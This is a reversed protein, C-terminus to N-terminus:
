LDLLLRAIGPTGFTGEFIPNRKESDFKFGSKEYALRAPTNNILVGIQARKYGSRRGRNLVEDLLRSVVGQRRYEPLAAVSEVIWAGEADDPICSMWSRYREVAAKQEDITWDIKQFVEPLAQVFSKMGLVKPDYGSLAGVKQGNMEAVIFTSSHFLHPKQTTAILSLLSLCDQETGGAYHEWIGYKLHSRSAALMVWALFPADDAIASRIDINMFVEKVIL